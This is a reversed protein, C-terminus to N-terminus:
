YYLFELAHKLRQRTSDMREWADITVDGTRFERYLEAANFHHFVSAVNPYPRFWDNYRSRLADVSPSYEDPKAAFAAKSEETLWTYSAPRPTILILVSKQYETHTQRSFLYQVGPVDQLLPVGDRASTSERESLGSLVLTDGMRMVVNANVQIESLEVKYTFAIDSSPPKLFTRSADIALRVLGGELIQPLLALKVGYRKEVTVSSGSGGSGGSVVAANLSAGSFFESRVGELATITPRALVENLNNTANAINLTYTLAPVTLARKIITTAAGSASNSDRSTERGYAPMGGSGFQLNLASLLNIGKATSITDETRIMVVDVLVMRQTGSSAAKEPLPAPKGTAAYAEKSGASAQTRVAAADLSRGQADVRAAGLTQRRVHQWDSMRTDVRRREEPAIPLEFYQQRQAQAADENGCASYVLVSGRLFARPLQAPNQKPDLRLRDALSCAMAPDNALYAAAMARNLAQADDPRLLLVEAFSSLAERYQRKELYALGLFEHAVWHGEDFRVAARYGEIATDLKSVDGQRAMVHYVLGNLFHLGANSADLKLSANLTRSAQDLRDAALSELAAKVAGALPYGAPVAAAELAAFLRRTTAAAQSGNQWDSQWEKQREGHSETQAQLPMLPAFVGLCVLGLRARRLLGRQLPAPAARVVLGSVLALRYMM